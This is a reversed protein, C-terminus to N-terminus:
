QKNIGEYFQLINGINRICVLKTNLFDCRVQRYENNSKTIYEIALTCDSLVIRVFMSYHRKYSHTILSSADNLKMLDNDSLTKLNTIGGDGKRLYKKWRIYDSYKNICIPLSICNICPMRKNTRKHKM